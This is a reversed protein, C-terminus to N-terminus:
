DTDGELATPLTLGLPSGQGFLDNKLLDTLKKVSTHLAILEDTTAAGLDPTSRVTDLADNLAAVIDVAL